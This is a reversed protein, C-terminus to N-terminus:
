QLAALSFLVDKCSKGTFGLRAVAIVEKGTHGFFVTEHKHFLDKKFGSTLFPFVGFTQELKKLAAFYFNLCGIGSADDGAAFGVQQGGGMAFIILM